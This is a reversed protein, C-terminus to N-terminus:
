AGVYMCVSHCFYVVILLVCLCVSLFMVCLPVYPGGWGSYRQTFAGFDEGWRMPRSLRLVDMGTSECVAELVDMAEDSNESSLFVDSYTVTYRGVYVCPCLLIFMDVMVIVANRM